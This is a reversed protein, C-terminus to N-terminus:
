LYIMACIYNAFIGEWDTASRKLRKTTDKM